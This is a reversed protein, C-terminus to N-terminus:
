LKPVHITDSRDTSLGEEDCSVRWGVVCHRPGGAVVASGPVRLWIKETNKSPEPPLKSPNEMGRPSSRTSMQDISSMSVSIRICRPLEAFKTVALVTLLTQSSGYLGTRLCLGQIM